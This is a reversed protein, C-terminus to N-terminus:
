RVYLTVSDVHLWKPDPKSWVGGPMRWQHAIALIWRNTLIYEVVRSRGGKGEWFERQSISGERVKSEIELADFLQRLEALTVKVPYEAM